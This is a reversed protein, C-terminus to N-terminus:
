AGRTLGMVPRPADCRRGPLLPCLASIASIASIAAQYGPVLVSLLCGCKVQVNSFVSYMQVSILDSCAVQIPMWRVLVVDNKM